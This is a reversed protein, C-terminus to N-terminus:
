ISEIHEAVLCMKDLYKAARKPQLRIDHLQVVFNEGELQCIYRVGDHTLEKVLDELLKAAIEPLGKPMKSISSDIDQISFNSLSTYSDLDLSFSIGYQNKLKMYINSSQYDFSDEENYGIVIKINRSKYNGAITISDTKLDEPMQLGYYNAFKIWANEPLNTSFMSM